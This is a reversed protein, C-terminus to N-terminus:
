ATNSEKTAFHGDRVLFTAPPAGPWPIEGADHCTTIFLQCGLAALAGVFLSFGERDLEAAPDDLLFLPSEALTARLLEAEALKLALIFRKQQGQSGYRALPHGNLRLHLEDRHPGISTHGSARDRERHEALLRRYLTAAEETTSWAQADRDIQCGLRLTPQSDAVALTQLHEELRTALHGLLDRRNISVRGGLVALRDEWAEMEATSRAPQQLLANRAQLAFRYDRMLPAHERYRSFVLWDLYARREAPGERVLRLTEPAVIVAALAQGMASATTMPKGNLRALQREPQGQFELRHELGAAHTRADLRFHPQGHRRLAQPPARRFSRGNALIGIAELLNSKGQGNGGIVLNLGNGFTLNAQTINRFDHINLTALHM